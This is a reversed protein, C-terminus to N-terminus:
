FTLCTPLVPHAPTPPLHPLQSVPRGTDKPTEGQELAASPFLQLNTEGVLTEWELYVLSWPGYACSAVEYDPHSSWIYIEVDYVGVSIPDTEDNRDLGKGTQM